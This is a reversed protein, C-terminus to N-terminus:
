RFLKTPKAVLIEKRESEQGIWSLIGTSNSRLRSDLAAYQSGIIMNHEPPERILPDGKKRRM